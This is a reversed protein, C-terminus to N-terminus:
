QNDQYMFCWDAARRMYIHSHDKDQSLRKKISEVFNQRHSDDIHSGSILTRLFVWIAENRWRFTLALDLVEKCVSVCSAKQMMAIHSQSVSTRLTPPFSLLHLLFSWGSTDGPHTLCWHQINAVLKPYYDQVDRERHYWCISMFWRIHSWSYYNRPHREGAKMVVSLEKELEPLLNSELCRTILWRRHSWLTPSKTHRHLPSTLLSELFTLEDSLAAAELKGSRDSQLQEDVTTPGAGTMGALIAKKRANVATLNEADMLLMVASSEMIASREGDKLRSDQALFITRAVMFAHVLNKKTIAISNGDVLVNIGVPLPHSKGVIELEFAEKGTSPSLAAVLDAYIRKDTDGDGVDDEQIFVRSM